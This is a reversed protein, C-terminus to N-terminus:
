GGTRGDLHLLHLRRRPEMQAICGDRSRLDRRTERTSTDLVWLDSNRTEEPPEWRMETYAVRSGDPSVALTTINAISFYDEPVIRHTRAPSDAAASAAIACAM